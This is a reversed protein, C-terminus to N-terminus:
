RLSKPARAARLVLHVFGPARTGYFPYRCLWGDGQWEVAVGALVYGHDELTSAARHLAEALVWVEAGQDFRM